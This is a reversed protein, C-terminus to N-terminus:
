LVVGRSGTQDDEGVVGPTDEPNTEGPEFERTLVRSARVPGYFLGMCIGFMLHGTLLLVPTAPDLGAGFFGLAPYGTGIQKHLLGFFPFVLVAAFVAHAFGLYTGLRAGSMRFYYEFLYAYLFGFVGGVLSHALFGVTWVQPGYPTQMILAGLYREFSFRSIGMMNFIDIWGAILMASFVGAWFARGWAIPQGYREIVTLKRPM